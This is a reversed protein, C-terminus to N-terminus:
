QRDGWIVPETAARAVYRLSDDNPYRDQQDANTYRRIRPRQWDAFIGEASLNITSTPSDLAIEMTDIRGRFLQFPTDILTLLDAELMGLYVIADRGQYHESLATTILTPDVGSMSLRIGTSQIDSAEEIPSIGGFDALGLWDWPGASSEGAGYPDGASGWSITGLASHARIPGSSFDLYVFMVGRVIEGTAATTQDTTIGRTM